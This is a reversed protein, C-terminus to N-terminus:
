SWLVMIHYLQSELGPKNIELAWVRGVAYCQNAKFYTIVIESMIHEIVIKYFSHKIHYYAYKAFILEM